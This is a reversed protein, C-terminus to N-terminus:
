QIAYTEIFRKRDMKTVRLADRLQQSQKGRLATEFVTTGFRVKVKGLPFSFQDETTKIAEAKSLGSAILTKVYTDKAAEIGMQIIQQRKTEEQTQLVEAQTKKQVAQRQNIEQDKYLKKSIGVAERMLKSFQQVEKFTRKQKCLVEAVLLPDGKELSRVLTTRIDNTSKM